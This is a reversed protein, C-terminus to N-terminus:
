RVAQCKGASELEEFHSTFREFFSKPLISSCFELFGAAAPEVSAPRGNVWYSAAPVPAFGLLELMWSKPLDFGLGFAIATEVYPAAIVSSGSELAPIIQWRLRFRLDAAYLLLLTRPSPPDELHLGSLEFFISSSDWVSFNGEVRQEQLLRKAAPVLDHGRVGDISILLPGRSPDGV